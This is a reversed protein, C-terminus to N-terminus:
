SGVKFREWNIAANIQYGRNMIVKIISELLELKEGQYSLKLNMNIIDQDAEMYQQSEAKLIKGKPPLKWGLQLQEDTPGDTYFEYKELKLKKLDAELKKYQLREQSFFRYYKNHLKAIDLAAHGLENRNISSDQEWEKFIEDLTM